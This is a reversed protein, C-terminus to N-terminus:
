VKKLTGKFGLLRYVVPLLRLLGGRGAGGIGSVRTSRRDEINRSQRNGRWRM